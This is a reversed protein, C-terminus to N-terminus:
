LLPADKEDARLADSLKGLLRRLEPMEDEGMRAAAFAEWQASLKIATDMCARGRETLRVLKARGDTPDPVFELYGREHLHDVLYAMSQKTMQAREALDTVRSGGPLLHRFVASHAPRVGPFREGLEAYLRRSLEQYPLRLLAGLTGIEETFTKKTM